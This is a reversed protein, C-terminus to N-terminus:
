EILSMNDSNCNKNVASKAAFKKKPIQIKKSSSELSSFLVRKFFSQSVCFKKRFIFLFNSTVFVFHKAIKKFLCLFNICIKITKFKIFIQKIFHFLIASANQIQIQKVSFKIKIIDIVNKFLKDYKIHFFIKTM